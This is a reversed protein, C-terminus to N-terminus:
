LLVAAVECEGAQPYFLSRSSSRASMSRISAKRITIASVTSKTPLAAKLTLRRLIEFTKAPNRRVRRVGLAPRLAANFLCFSQGRHRDGKGAEPVGPFNGLVAFPQLSKEIM